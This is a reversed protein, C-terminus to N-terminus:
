QFQTRIKSGRPHATDNSRLSIITASESLELARLERTFDYIVVGERGDEEEEEEEEDEDEPESFSEGGDTNPSSVPPPQPSPPAKQTSHSSLTYSCSILPPTSTAM